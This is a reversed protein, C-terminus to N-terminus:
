EDPDNHIEVADLDVLIQFAKEELTMGEYKSADIVKSSAPSEESPVPTEEAISVPEEQPEVEEVVATASEAVIDVGASDEKGSEGEEEQPQQELQQQQQERELSEQALKELLAEDFKEEEAYEVELQANEALFDYVMRRELTSEVKRRMAEEDGMEEPNQGEKRAQDKLAQIQEEIQYAPVSIGELRAIEDVAMSIKFDRVIGERSLEKYKDFNEPSILKKIEEDAMGNDRMDTMMLAYKERAQNTVLTEPVEVEMVEALAKGLAENRAPVYEQADQSDVAKRLEEKLTEVTLGPRVQDAFEDTLEPLIRRSASLIEVDFVAQKGALEKNRLADPFRVSVTKVQGVTGGVLGEVLGEMYRGTGLIVEVNDGSAADPLPEGKSGDPNALYGTMNVVCADGMALPRVEGDDYPELRAYREALDRLAADFRAQDFPKRRYKGTLGAYPKEKGEMEKWRIDPWVDCQVVVEFEGEGPTMGEALVDAPTVLAPQGIPELDFEEKLAPGILESCLENIAMTKIANKGGNRSWANEIVAPPIKAGKRFGPISLQKAIAALTKAYAASTSAPPIRLTLRVSSNPLRELTSSSPSSSSNDTTSFLRTSRSSSSSSPPSPSSPLLSSAAGPVALHSPIAIQGASSAAHHLRPASATFADARLASLALCAALAMQSIQFM